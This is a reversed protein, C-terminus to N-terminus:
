RYRRELDRLVTCPNFTTVNRGRPRHRTWRLAERLAPNDAPNTMDLTERERAAVRALRRAEVRSMPRDPNEPTRVAARGGPTPDTM